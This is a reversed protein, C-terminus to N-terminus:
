ELYIAKDALCPYVKIIELEDSWTLKRTKVQYIHMVNVILLVTVGAM